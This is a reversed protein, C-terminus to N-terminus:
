RGLVALVLAFIGIIVAEFMQILVFTGNSYANGMGFSGTTVVSQYALVANLGGLNLLVSVRVLNPKRLPEMVPHMLWSGQVTPQSIRTGLAFM